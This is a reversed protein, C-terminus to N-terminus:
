WGASSPRRGRRTSSRPACPRRACCSASTRIPRRMPSGCCGPPRPGCCRPRASTTVSASADRYGRVELKDAAEEAFLAHWYKMVQWWGLRDHRAQPADGFEAQHEAETLGFRFLRGDADIRHGGFRNFEDIATQAIRRGTETAPKAAAAKCVAQVSKWIAAAARDPQALAPQAALGITVVIACAIARM